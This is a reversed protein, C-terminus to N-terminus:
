HLRGNAQMAPTVAWYVKEATNPRGSLPIADVTTGDIILLKNGAVIPPGTAFPQRFARIELLTGTRANLTYLMGAIDAVYLRGNM